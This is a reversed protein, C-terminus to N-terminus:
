ASKMLAKVMKVVKQLRAIDLPTHGDKTKRGRDGGADLVAQLMRENGRSAAQHVATWGRDDPQNPSAGKAILWHM